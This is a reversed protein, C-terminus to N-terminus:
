QVSCNGHSSMQIEERYFSKNQSEYPSLGRLKGSDFLVDFWSKVHEWSSSNCSISLYEVPWVPLKVRNQCHLFAAESPVSLLCEDAIDAASVATRSARLKNHWQLFVYNHASGFVYLILLALSASLVGTWTLPYPFVNWVVAYQITFVWRYAQTSFLVRGHAVLNSLHNEDDLKFSERWCLSFRYPLATFSIVSFLFSAILM